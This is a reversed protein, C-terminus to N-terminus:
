IPSSGARFGKRNRGSVLFLLGFVLHPWLHVRSIMQAVDSWNEAICFLALPVSLLLAIGVIRMWRWAALSGVIPLIFVLAFGAPSRPTEHAGMAFSALYCFGLM